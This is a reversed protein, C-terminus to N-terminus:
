FERGVFSIVAKDQELQVLRQKIDADSFAQTNKFEVRFLENNDPGDIVHANWKKLFQRLTTVNANKNFDIFVVLNNKSEGANEVGEMTVTKYVTSATSNTPAQIYYLALVGIQVALLSAFLANAPKWMGGDGLWDTVSQKIGQWWSPRKALTSVAPKVEPSLEVPTTHVAEREIRKLLKDLRQQTTDMATLKLLDANLRITEVLKLERTYEEQLVPYQQLAAEVAAKEAASLKGTIYWPLLLRAEEIPDKHTHQSM